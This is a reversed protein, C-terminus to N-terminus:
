LGTNFSIFLKPIHESCVDTLDKQDDRSVLEVCKNRQPVKRNEPKGINGRSIVEIEECREAKITCLAM